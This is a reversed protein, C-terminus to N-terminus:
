HGTQHVNRNHDRHQVLLLRDVLEIRADDRREVAGVPLRDEDVVARGVSREGLQAREVLTVCAHTHNAELAVEALVRRHVGPEGPRLARADDRHVSVQLVLRLVNRSQELREIADVDGGAAADPTLVRGASRHRAADDFAEEAPECPDRDGVETAREVAAMDSRGKELWSM